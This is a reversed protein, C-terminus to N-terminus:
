DFRPSIEESSYENCLGCVGDFRRALHEIRLKTAFEGNWIAKLDPNDSVNGFSLTGEYDVCCPVVRGDWLIIPYGLWLLQCRSNRAKEEHTIYPTVFIEDVIGEWRERFSKLLCVTEECAVMAVGVKLEKRRKERLHLFRFIKKEIETYDYGRIHTYTDGYGDLSFLVRHVGSNILDLSSEDDLLTANTFLYCRVSRDVAFRIFDLLRPHMLPEGWLCLQIIEIDKNKELVRRYLDFDMFGKPRNMGTNVPCVTCKLNCTNTLEFAIMKVEPVKLRRTRFSLENKIAALLGSFTFFKSHLFSAMEPRKLYYRAVLQCIHATTREELSM